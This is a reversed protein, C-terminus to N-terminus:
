KTRISTTSAADGSTRPTTRSSCDTATRISGRRRPRTGRRASPSSGPADGDADAVYTDRNELDDSENTAYAIREGDPAFSAFVVPWDYDTVQEVDSGDIRCRYLNMQEGADSGFLLYDDSVDQIVCQGDLDVVKTV